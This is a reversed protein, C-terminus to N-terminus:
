ALPEPPRGDYAFPSDFDALLPQVQDKTSLDLMTGAPLSWYIGIVPDNWAIGGDQEAAYTDSCKYVVETDHELKVFGHAFDVPVFLQHRNDAM